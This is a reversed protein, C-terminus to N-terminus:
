GIFTVCICFAWRSWGVIIENAKLYQLPLLFFFFVSSSFIHHTLSNNNSAQLNLCGYPYSLFLESVLWHVYSRGVLQLGIKFGLKLFM